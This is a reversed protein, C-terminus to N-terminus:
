AQLRATAFTPVQDLLRQDKHSTPNEIINIWMISGLREPTPLPALPTSIGAERSVLFSLTLFGLINIDASEQLKRKAQVPSSAAGTSLSLRKGPASCHSVMARLRVHASGQVTPTICSDFPHTGM